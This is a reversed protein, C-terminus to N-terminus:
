SLFQELATTQHTRGHHCPMIRKGRGAPPRSVPAGGEEGEGRGCMGTDGASRSRGLVMVEGGGRGGM